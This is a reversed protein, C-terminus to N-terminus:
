RCAISLLQSLGNKTSVTFDLSKYAATKYPAIESSIPDNSYFYRFQIGNPGSTGVTEYTNGNTSFYGKGYTTIRAPDDSVITSGRMLRATIDVYYPAAMMQCSQSLSLTESLDQVPATNQQIQSLVSSQQQIVQNQQEVQGQLHQISQNTQQQTAIQVQLLEVQKLLTELQLQTTSSAPASSARTGTEIIAQANAADVESGSIKEATGRTLPGFFGSAPSIGQQVQFAKVSNLTLSYYNGTIPGTYLNQAALFEQLQSVESDSQMGFFLNKTFGQAHALPASLVLFVGLALSSTLFRSNM